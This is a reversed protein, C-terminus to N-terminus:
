GDAFHGDHQTVAANVAAKSAKKVSIEKCFTELVPVLMLAALGSTFGGNYINFGGHIAATYSVLCSHLAGAVVGWHWGWRGSIPSLGTAFCIGVAIAQTNLNWPAFFSVLVYGAIIPLVNRPHSGNGAWCVICLLSGVTPGTFPAGIIIFYALCGLGLLGFNILVRGMGDLATFDCNHGTRGLLGIYGKFSKENLMFGASLSVLFIGGLLMPFFIPFGNSLIGNLAYESELDMPRLVLIKYIAFFLFALFGASLGANFLNHGKHMTAAHATVAPFAVGILIGIFLAIVVGLALPYEVNRNFLSESIIPSLSCAFLSMNAYKGFPEKKIRSFLWVGLIIPWINLCNKGFFSFGVTLFFAGISAGGLKAGSFKMLALAILGLLGCNLLSGGLGGVACADTTLVQASTLIRVFGSFMDVVSGVFFATAIMIISFAFFFSNMIKETSLKTGSM